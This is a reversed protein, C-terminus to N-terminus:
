GERCPIRYLHRLSVKSSDKASKGMRLTDNISVVSNRGASTMTGSGGGEAQEDVLYDHLLAQVETQVPKWADSLSFLLNGSKSASDKFDRRQFNLM